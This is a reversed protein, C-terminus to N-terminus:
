EDGIVEADLVDELVIDPWEEISDAIAGFSRLAAATQGAAAKLGDLASIRRNLEEPDLDYWNM